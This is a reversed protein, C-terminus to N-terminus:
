WPHWRLASSVVLGVRYFGNFDTWTGVQEEVSCALDSLTVGRRSFWGPRATPFSCAPSMGPYQVAAVPPDLVGCSMSKARSASWSARMIDSAPFKRERARRDGPQTRDGNRAGLPGDDELVEGVVELGAARVAFALQVGDQPPEVVVDGGTAPLRRRRPVAALRREVRTRSVDPRGRPPRSVRPRRGAQRASVPISRLRGDDTLFTRLVKGADSTTRRQNSHKELWDMLQSQEVRWDRGIRYGPIDGAQLKRQVVQHNLRLGRRGRKGHLPRNPVHVSKLPNETPEDNRAREPPM